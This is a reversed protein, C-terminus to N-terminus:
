KQRHKNEFGEIVKRLETLIIRQEGYDKLTKRMMEDDEKPMGERLLVRGRSILDLGSKKNREQRKRNDKLDKNAIIFSHLFFQACISKMTPPRFHPNDVLFDEFLWQLYDDCSFGENKLFRNTQNILKGEAPTITKTYELSMIQVYRAKFIVIFRKKDNHVKKQPSVKHNKEFVHRAVSEGLLEVQQYVNPIDEIGCMEAMVYVMGMFKEANDDPVPHKTSGDKSM